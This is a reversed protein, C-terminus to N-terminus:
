NASCQDGFGATTPELGIAGAVVVVFGSLLVVVHLSEAAIEVSTQDSSLFTLQGVRSCTRLRVTSTKAILKTTPSYM